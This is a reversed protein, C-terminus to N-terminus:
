LAQDAGAKDGRAKGRRDHRVKSGREKWQQRMAERESQDIYGDGNADMKKFRAEMMKENAARFEDYSIKGDQDADMKLARQPKKDSAAGDNAYVAASGLGLTAIIAAIGLVNISKM